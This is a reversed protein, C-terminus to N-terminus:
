AAADPKPAGQTVLAQYSEDTVLTRRGIKVTKLVGRKILRWATPDSISAGTCVHGVTHLRPTQPTEPNDSM